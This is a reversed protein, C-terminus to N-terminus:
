GGSVGGSAAIAAVARGRGAFGRAPWLHPGGLRRDDMPHSGNRPPASRALDAGAAPPDSVRAVAAAVSSVFAGRRRQRRQDGARLQLIAHHRLEDRERPLAAARFPDGHRYVDGDAVTPGPSRRRAGPLPWHRPQLGRLDGAGAAGCIRHDRHFRNWPRHRDHFAHRGRLGPRRAASIPSGRDRHLHHCIRWEAM